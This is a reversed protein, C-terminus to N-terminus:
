PGRRLAHAVGGPRVRAGAAVEPADIVRDGDALGERVEVAEEGRLGLRLDRRTARGGSIVLVYPRSTAADRVVRLPVVLARSARAVEIEVSVTMEARLEPPPDPVALRVEITGRRPDVAPAIWRVTADFRKEPFADASALAKQGEHLLALNQEDPAITLELPGDRLLELVHRGPQVVDGPEVARAVVVGAAPAVLRHYSLRAEAAALNAEAQAALAAASRTEPGGAGVAAEQAGASAVQSRALELAREAEELEAASSAGAAALQRRRALEADARALAVRAQAALQGALPSQVRRVAGVRARAALAAARASAVLARQEADDLEVLLQGAVVRDGERVHVQRVLGTVLPALSVRAPPLVRGSAVVTQVVDARRVRVVDVREGGITPWVLVAVVAVLAAGSLLGLALRRRSRAISM